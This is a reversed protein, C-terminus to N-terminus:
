QKEFGVNSVKGDTTLIRLHYVGAPLGSLPLMPNTADKLPLLKVVRGLNDIVQVSAIHSGTITVFSSAPNPYVSVALLQSGLVSVINSYAISGDKDVMQLRYYATGQLPNNDIYSYNLMSSSNGAAAVKGLATFSSGNSSREIVFYAANTENATQWQTVVGNNTSNASFAVLKVPTTCNGGTCDSGLKVIWCDGGGHNGSVDGDNSYTYGAIIYGKDATETISYAEDLKSGGLTKQWQLSGTSDLKIVLYDWNNHNGSVDGNSNETYGALIYGGDATPQISQAGDGRNGGFTKQWLLSGTSDLKVVWCDADSSHNGTVDGDDSGTSGAVIYGGDTTPQISYAGDNGTGGLAKQWQLIGTSDLKVVWYDYDGHNGSVDGDNSMASGAVIYGGDAAQQISYAWDTSTGGLTKQWQLSGANDLKIVWYDYTVISRNSGYYVHTGSVDGDNSNTVGAVIYGGDTTPQISEAVDHGTGGYTKQWQLSGTNDFKVIWYDSSSSDGDSNKTYGAVIYGGDAAPQISRAVHNGTGDFVKQWQLNGTNGLKVVWCDNGGHNGSVDGNNSSSTGALIYGGDATPQISYAEDGASGGLAKQWQISPATQANTKTAAALALLLFLLPLIKTCKKM